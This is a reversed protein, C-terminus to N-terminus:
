EGASLVEVSRPLYDLEVGYNAPKITYYLFRRDIDKKLDMEIGPNVWYTKGITEKVVKGDKVVIEGEKITYHASSFAQEIKTGDTEEPSIDYIAINAISGEALSADQERGLRKAPGSRTMIAIEELSLERDISAITTRESAWRSCEGLTEERYKKSMLWAIIKPYNSFPSANPHDTSLFVQWPDKIHLALELGIAWQVANVGSKQRYTYPVVGGGTEDEVDANNWKRHTIAGISYEFPGDATMTTTDGFAVQGMDVTINKKKNIEKAVKEAESSFTKWSEGGYSSFQLHTIHLPDDPKLLEITEGVAEYNGPIGLNPLHIHLPHPLDLERNVNVLTEIIEAPTIEFYPVTDRLSHVNEKWGWAFTGGPNVAKIGYTKTVSLMWAVWPACKEMDGKKIYEILQQNNGLLLLGMKDLIPTDMFEEHTHRAKLPPVAPENVLVYGMKAYLYGTSHTSPVSFGSGSRLEGEKPMQRRISDEPRFLRGMNVKAGAIHSHIDVGGPMVVKGKADIIIANKENARSLKEVIKGDSILIDKKEGCIGCAPDYVTGNKIIITKKKM